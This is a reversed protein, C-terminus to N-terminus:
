GYKEKAEESKKELLVLEELKLVVENITLRDSPSVQTCAAVLEGYKTPLKLDTNIKGQNLNSLLFKTLSLNRVLSIEKVIETPNKGVFLKQDTIEILTM